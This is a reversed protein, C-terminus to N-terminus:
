ITGLPDIRYLSNRWTPTDPTPWTITARPFSWGATRWLTRICELTTHRGKGVLTCMAFTNRWRLGRWSTSPSIAKVIGFPWPRIHRHIRPSIRVMSHVSVTPRSRLTNQIPTGSTNGLSQRPRQNDSGYTTSSRVRLPMWVSGWSGICVSFCRM